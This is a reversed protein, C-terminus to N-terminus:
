HSESTRQLYYKHLFSLGIGLFIGLIMGLFIIQLKQPKYPNSAPLASDIIKFVYEKKVNAIMINKTQEEVMKYLVNQVGVINTRALQQELFLISQKSDNIAQVQIHKNLQAILKNVWTSSKIPDIWDISITYIDSQNSITLKERLSSALSEENPKDQIWEQKDKDWDDSFLHKAINNEEIFNNLFTRSNLIALAVETSSPGSSASMGALGALGGLASGMSAGSSSSEVPIVVVESKYQEPLTSSYIGFIIAFFLSSLVVTFKYSLIFKLIDLINIELEKEENTKNELM